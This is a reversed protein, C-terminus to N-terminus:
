VDATEVELENPMEEQNSMIHDIYLDAYKIRVDCNPEIRTWAALAGRTIEDLLDYKQQLTM